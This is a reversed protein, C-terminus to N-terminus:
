PSSLNIALQYTNYAYVLLFNELFLLLFVYNIMYNFCALHKIAQLLFQKLINQKIM